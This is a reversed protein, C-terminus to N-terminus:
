NLRSDSRWDFNWDSGGDNRLSSFGGVLLGIIIALIGLAIVAITVIGNIKFYLGLNDIIRSSNAEYNEKTLTELQAAAKWILMGLWIYLAGIGWYFISVIIGILTLALVLGALIMFGAGIYSLIAIFKLWGQYGVLKKLDVSNNTTAMSSQTHSKTMSKDIISVYYLFAAQPVARQTSM